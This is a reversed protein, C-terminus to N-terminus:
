VREVLKQGFMGTPRILLVVLAVAYAFWGEIGGGFFPGIYVEALKESAGILLGAVIAGLISDFGGLVLVPLAKLVILSLSFQVGLRAGWLLGAVLAVFGAAAWVTGWIVPLRLGTALAAFQDDAVARFGLGIRSYRFFVSLVAVMAAAVGAAVLDFTSIYIGAVEFPLNSIGLDLQHVQTGWALQAAGEIVYSLGLTAMFLTMPSRNVLPRLVLREIGFGLAGMMAFTVLFVLASPMGREVLSVFTLAAFLVMAGQAFNLIGSTKYILVFGIAVLSYMVGSLLGGVLVEVGFLVDYGDM